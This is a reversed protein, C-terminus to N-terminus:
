KTKNVGHVSYYRKHITVEKKPEHTRYHEVLKAIKAMREAFEKKNVSLGKTTPKFCGAIKIGDEEYADPNFRIFVIPRNGCDQFIEM